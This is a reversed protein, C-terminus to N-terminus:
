SDVVVGEAPEKYTHQNEQMHIKLSIERMIMKFTLVVFLLFTLQSVSMWNLSFDFLDGSTIVPLLIFNHLVDIVIIAATLWVGIKPKVILLVAALPDLFTLSDWFVMSFLPADYKDSLFGNNIAWRLHTSAGGLMSISQIVLIVKTITNLKKFLM